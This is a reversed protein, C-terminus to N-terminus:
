TAAMDLSCSSSLTRRFPQSQTTKTTASPAKSKTKSSVKKTNDAGVMSTKRQTSLAAQPIKKM